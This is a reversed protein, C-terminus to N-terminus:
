DGNEITTFFGSPRCLFFCAIFLFLEHVELMWCRDFAARICCLTMNCHGLHAHTIWTWPSPSTGSAASFIRSLLNLLQKAACTSTAHPRVSSLAQQLLHLLILSGIIRPSCIFLVVVARSLRSHSKTDILALPHASCLSHLFFMLLLCPKRRNSNAM